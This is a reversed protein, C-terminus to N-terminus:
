DALDSWTSFGEQIDKWRQAKSGLINLPDIRNETDDIDDPPVVGTAFYPILVTELNSQYDSEAAVLALELWKSNGEAYFTEHREVAYSDTEEETVLNVQNYEGGHGISAKITTGDFDTDRYLSNALAGTDRPVDAYAQEYIESATRKVGVKAVDVIQTAIKTLNSVINQIDSEKIKLEVKIM